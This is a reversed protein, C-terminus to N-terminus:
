SVTLASGNWTILGYNSPIPDITIDHIMWLHDVSLTQTECSPTVEYSGEYTPPLIASPITLEGALTQPSSLTGSITVPASLIGMLEGYVHM